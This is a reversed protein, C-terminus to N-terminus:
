PKSVEEGKKEAQRPSRTDKGDGSDPPYVNNIAYFTRIKSGYMRHAELLNQMAEGLETLEAVFSDQDTTACARKLHELVTSYSTQLPDHIARLADLNPAAAELSEVLIEMAPLAETHLLKRTKEPQNKSAHARSWSDEFARMTKELSQTKDSYFLIADQEVSRQEIVEPAPRLVYGILLIGVPLLLLFSVNRKLPIM